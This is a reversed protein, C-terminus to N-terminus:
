EAARAAAAHAPATEPEPVLVADVTTATHVVVAQVPRTRRPFSAPAEAPLGAPPILAGPHM